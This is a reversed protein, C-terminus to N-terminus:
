SFIDCLFIILPVSSIIWLGPFDAPWYVYSFLLSVSRKRYIPKFGNIWLLFFDWRFIDPTPSSASCLTSSNLPPHMQICRRSVIQCYRTLVHWGIGLLYIGRLMYGLCVFVGLFRKCMQILFYLSHLMEVFYDYVSTFDIFQFEVLISLDWFCDQAFVLINWSTM